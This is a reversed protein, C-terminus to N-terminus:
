GGAGNLFVQIILVVLAIFIAKMFSEHSSNSDAITKNLTKIGDNLEREGEKREIREQNILEKLDCKLCDRNKNCEDRNVYEVSVSM